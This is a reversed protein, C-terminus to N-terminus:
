KGWNKIIYLLFAIAGFIYYGYQGLEWVTSPMKETVKQAKQGGPFEDEFDPEDWDYVHGCIKCKPTDKCISNNLCCPCDRVAGPISVM